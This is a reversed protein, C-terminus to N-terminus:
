PVCGVSHQVTHSSRGETESRAKEGVKVSRNLQWPVPFAGPLHVLAISSGRGEDIVGFLANNLLLIADSAAHRVNSECLANGGDGKKLGVAVLGLSSHGGTAPFTSPGTPLLEGAFAGSFSVGSWTASGPFSSIIGMYM